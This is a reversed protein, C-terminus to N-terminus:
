SPQGLPQLAASAAATATHSRSLYERLPAFGSFVATACGLIWGSVDAPEMGLVLYVPKGLRFAFTVEGQTGAGRAACPDWFVILADSGHEIIDLDYAIIKRIVARFREPDSHKWARFGALEVATLSKKEDTAPDYVSHGLSHLFPTLEARWARGLDPSYEISGCLYFRM